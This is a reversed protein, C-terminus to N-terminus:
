DKNEAEVPKDIQQKDKKINFRFLAVIYGIFAFSDHILAIIYFNFAGNLIWVAFVAVSLIRYLKKNTVFYATTCISGGIIPLINTLNSYTLIGITIQLSVFFFLWFISDAWKKKGRKIFVLSQLLQIFCIGASTINGQLAFYITWCIAVAMFFSFIKRRSNSQTECLKFGIALLGFINFLIHYFVGLNLRLAVEVSNRINDLAIHLGNLSLLCNTM